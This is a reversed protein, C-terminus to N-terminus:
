GGASTDSVALKARREVWKGVPNRVLEVIDIASEQIEIIKGYNEGVHEGVRVHHTTQDPATVIAWVDSGNQVTGVMLMGDLPYKELPDKRRNPDPGIGDPDVILPNDEPSLNATSFPDAMQDASYQFRQYPRVEPLAAIEPKKAKYANETFEVLDDIGARRACGNMFTAVALLLIGSKIHHSKM